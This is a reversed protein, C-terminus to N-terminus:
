NEGFLKWLKELKPIDFEGWIISKTNNKMLNITETENIMHYIGEFEGMPLKAKEALIGTYVDEYPLAPITDTTPESVIAQYIKLAMKGPVMFTGALYQSYQKYPFYLPDIYWKSKIGVKQRNVFTKNRYRGIITDAKLQAVQNLIPNVRLFCDDDLKLMYKVKPCNLATWRIASISKLTLNYYSEYFNVMIIDNYLRSEFALQTKIRYFILNLNTLVLTVM